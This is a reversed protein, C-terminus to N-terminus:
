LFSMRKGNYRSVNELDKEAKLSMSPPRSSYGIGNLRDANLPLASSAAAYTSIMNTNVNPNMVLCNENSQEFKIRFGTRVKSLLVDDTRFKCFFNKKKLKLFYFILFNFKLIISIYRFRLVIPGNM